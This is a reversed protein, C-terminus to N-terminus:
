TINGTHMCKFDWSVVYIEEDNEADLQTSALRCNFAKTNDALTMIMNNHVLAEIRSVVRLIHDQAGGKINADLFYYVIDIAFERTESSSSYELLESSVPKIELYTSGAPAKNGKLIPLAGKFEQKFEYELKDLISKWNNTFNIAM